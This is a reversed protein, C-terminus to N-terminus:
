GVPIPKVARAGVLREGGAPGPREEGAQPAAGGARVANTGNV